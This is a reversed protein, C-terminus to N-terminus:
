CISLSKKLSQVLKELKTRQRDLRDCRTWDRSNICALVDGDLHKISAKCENIQRMIDAYTENSMEVIAVGEGRAIAGSVHHNLVERPTMTALKAPDIRTM